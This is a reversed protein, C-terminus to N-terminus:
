APKKGVKKGSKKDVKAVIPPEESSPKPEGKPAPPAFKKYPVGAGPQDIAISEQLATLKWEAGDKEYIAFVRLPTLPDDDSIRNVPATVWAIQGDPTVSSSTEGVVIERVHTELRHSWLKKVDKAGRALEGATPGIVVPHDRSALDTGWTSQDVFGKQFRAVAGAARADARAVAVMGPPVVADQALETKVLEQKPTHAITAADLLWLDDTNSVVATMAMPAGDVMVVDFVWASRGGRAPQVALTGSSTVTPPKRADVGKGFAILAAERSAVADVRRPGFVTLAPALLPILGDARGKAVDNYIENVHGKVDNAATAEDIEPGLKLAEPTAVQAHGCATAAIALVIALRM